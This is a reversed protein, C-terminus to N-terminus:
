SPMSYHQPVVAWNIPVAAEPTDRTEGGEETARCPQGYEMRRSPPTARTFNHIIADLSKVKGLAESLLSDFNATANASTEEGTNQDSSASEFATVHAVFTTEHGLAEFETARTQAAQDMARARTALTVDSVSYPMRFSDM